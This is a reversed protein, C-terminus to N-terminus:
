DEKSPPSFVGNCSPIPEVPKSPMVGRLCTTEVGLGIAVGRRVFPIPAVGKSVGDRGPAVGINRSRDVFCFRLDRYTAVKEM